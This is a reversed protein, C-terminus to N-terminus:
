QLVVTAVASCSYYWRLLRVAATLAIPMFRPRKSSVVTGIWTSYIRAVIHKSDTVVGTLPDLHLIFSISKGSTNEDYIQPTEPMLCVINAKGVSKCLYVNWRDFAHHDPSFPDGIFVWKPIDKRKKPLVKPIYMCTRSTLLYHCHLRPLSVAM